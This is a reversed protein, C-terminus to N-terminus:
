PRSCAAEIASAEATADSAEQGIAVPDGNDQLGTQMAQYDAALRGLLLSLRPAVSARAAAIDALDSAESGTM